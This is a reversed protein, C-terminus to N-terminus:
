YFISHYTARCTEVIDQSNEENKKRKKRTGEVNKQPAKKESHLLSKNEETENLPGPFGVACWCLSPAFSLYLSVALLFPLLLTANLFIQVISYLYM